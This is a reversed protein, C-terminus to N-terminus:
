APRFFSVFLFLIVLISLAITWWRRRYRTLVYIWAAVVAGVLLLAITNSM